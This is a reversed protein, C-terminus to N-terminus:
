YAALIIRYYFRHFLSRKNLTEVADEAYRDFLSLEQETLTYQSYKAKQALQFLSAEPIQGLLGALRVVEQWRLIAQENPSSQSCKKQWLRRRLVYQGLMVAAALACVAISGLVWLLASLDPKETKTDPSETTDPATQDASAPATSEAASTTEPQDPDSRYDAPTSELVTWGFGPLWYEVWAHAKDATVSVTEGATVEATYGTVYRAPINAAQLLVATATAFHVCYGTDSDELFWRAFNMERTPMAATATDYTASNRVYAAIALAKHYTNSADATIQQALPQAWKAVDDSLHIFQSLYASSYESSVVSDASPFLQSLYGPDTLTRCSFSYQTLKKENEFGVTIERMQSIDIYYPVYLMRHAYRTSVTVEGADELQYNPWNLLTMSPEDTNYWSIGDFSNMARGRLYLTGDFEATVDLIKAQSEVRYGVNRLDVGDSDVSLFSNGQTYSMFLQVPDSGLVSSVLKEANEQGHYSDKPVAAFLLLLALATVPLAILSLRNGQAADQRRVKGTLLLLVLALLLFYLWVTDPVTDTVVFCTCVWLLSLLICPIVTKRRCVSWAAAMAIVVSIICLITIMTPEMDDATRVGWRIIGWGYARDYQRSLRNLLAEVSDTLTGSRWLYGLSLAGIAAPVAGLPLSYCLSCVFAALACYLVLTPMSVGLDFATVVCASSSLSLLFALVFGWAGSIVKELKM